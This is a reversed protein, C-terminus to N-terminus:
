CTEVPFTVTLRFLVASDQQDSFAYLIAITSGLGSSISCALLLSNELFSTRDLVGHQVAM